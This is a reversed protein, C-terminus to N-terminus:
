NNFYLCNIKLVCFWPLCSSWQEWIVRGQFSTFICSKSQGGTMVFVQWAEKLYSHLNNPCKGPVKFQHLSHFFRAHVKCFLPHIRKRHRPWFYKKKLLSFCHCWFPSTKVSASHQLTTETNFFITSPNRPEACIDTQMGDWGFVPCEQCVHNQKLQINKRQTWLCLHPSVSTPLSSCLSLPLSLCVSLGVSLALSM